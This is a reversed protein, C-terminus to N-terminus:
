VPGLLPLFDGNGDSDDEPDAKSVYDMTAAVSDEHERVLADYRTRIFDLDPNHPPLKPATSYPLAIAVDLKDFAHSCADHEGM